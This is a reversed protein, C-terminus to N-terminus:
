ITWIRSKVNDFRTNIEDQPYYLTGM